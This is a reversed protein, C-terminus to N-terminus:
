RKPTASARRAALLAAVRAWIEDPVAEPEEDGLDGLAFNFELFACVDAHEEAPAEPLAQAVFAPISPPLTGATLAAALAKEYALAVQVDRAIRDHNM